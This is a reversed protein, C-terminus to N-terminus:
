LREPQCQRTRASGRDDQPCVPHHGHHGVVWVVRVWGDSSRSRRRPHQAPILSAPGLPTLAGAITNGTELSLAAAVVAKVLRWAAQSMCFLNGLGPVPSVLTATLFCTTFKDPVM